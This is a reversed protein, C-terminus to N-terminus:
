QRSTAAKPSRCSASSHLASSAAPLPPSPPPLPRTCARPPTARKRARASRSSSSRATYMCRRLAPHAELETLTSPLPSACGLPPAAAAAATAVSVPAVASPSPPPPPPPPSTPPPSAPATSAALTASRCHRPSTPRSPPQRQGSLTPNRSYQAGRLQRPLSRLDLCHQADEHPAWKADVGAAVGECREGHVEIAILARATSRRHQQGYSLTGQAHHQTVIRDEAAATAYAAATAALGGSGLGLRGGCSHRQHQRHLRRVLSAPQLSLLHLPELSPESVLYVALHRPHDAVKRGPQAVVWRVKFERVGVARHFESPTSRQPTATHEGQVRAVRHLKGLLRCRQHAAGNSAVHM